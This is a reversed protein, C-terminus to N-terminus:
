KANTDIVGEILRNELQISQDLLESSKDYKEKAEKFGSVYGYVRGMLFMFYAVAFLTVLNWIGM